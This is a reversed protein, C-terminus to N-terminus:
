MKPAQAPRRPDGAELVFESLLEFYADSRRPPGDGRLATELSIESVECRQASARSFVAALRIVDGDSHGRLQLLREPSFGELAAAGFLETEREKPWVVSLTGGASLLRSCAPFWRILPLSSEHRARTRAPDPSAPKDRFYPPNLWVAEFSAAAQAAAFALFDEEVVRIRPAFPSAAANERAQAAAEPDLEVAVVSAEPARQVAMLALIGSGTGVDLLREGAAPVTAWAGLILADTGVKMACRDDRVDFQKLRLVRNKSKGM